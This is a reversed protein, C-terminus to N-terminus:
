IHGICLIIIFLYSFSRKDHVEDCQGLTRLEKYYQVGGFNITRFSREDSFHLVRCKKYLGCVRNRCTYLMVYLM